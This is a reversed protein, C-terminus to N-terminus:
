KVGVGEEEWDSDEGELPQM